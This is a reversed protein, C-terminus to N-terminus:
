FLALSVFNIIFLIDMVWIIPHIQRVKKTLLCSLTYMLFGCAIGQTISFTVGMFVTTFFAPIAESMDSWEIDKLSSLMMIGVVILIVATAQAPIITLLPTFFISLMFLLAVVVATLGTRGGAGIGAASELYTTINSTGSVAGVTTGVMDSLLAREMRKNALTGEALEKNTFLGAKEGTGILTGVNDIIDTMAFAIITLIVEPLHAPDSFLEGMGDPGLAAGFLTKLEGMAALPSSAQWDISTLDVVGMVIAVITTVALSLLIGGKINKVVFFITIFLAVIALFVEPKDFAVLSPTALSANFTGGSQYHGGADIVFELFGANKIGIYALFIGIGATMAKKLSTPIEQILLRRVKTLTVIISAIGCIFVMALAEQWSYGLAACVTYTFFVSLGLGPAMAYPINAYLGMVLTGAVSGIITALMVGGAPMGTNALIDPAVFLIYSMAFFTTLGAMVETKVDTQNDTLHFMKELM